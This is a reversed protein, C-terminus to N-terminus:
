NIAVGADRVVPRWIEFEQKIRQGFQASPLYDIRAVIKSLRSVVEPDELAKAVANQIQTVVAAPTKAPALLGYWLETNAENVGQEALTPLEPALPSREPSFTALVRIKGSRHFEMFDGLADVGVQVHGGLLDNSLLSGGKYPIHTWELRAAKGLREASLHGIGGAGSTGYGLDKKHTKSYEILDRINKIPSTAPVVVALPTSVMNAIPVFDTLLDFNTTKANVISQVVLPNVTLMVVSGDAHMNKVQGAALRGGAGPKNDVIVPRGLPAALKDAIVRALYDASGGAAYGVVITLPKSPSQALAGTMSGALLAATVLHPLSRLSRFLNLPNM